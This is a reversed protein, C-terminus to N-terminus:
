QLLFVWVIVALTVAALVGLAINGLLQLRKQKRNDTEYSNGM